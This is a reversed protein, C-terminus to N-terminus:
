FTKPEDRPKPPPEALHQLHQVWLVAPIAGSALLTAACPGGILGGADLRLGGDEALVLHLWGRGAATRLDGPLGVVHPNGMGAFLPVALQALVAWSAGGRGAGLVLCRSPVGTVAQRVAPHEAFGPKRNRWADLGSPETTVVLRGTGPGDGVWGIALPVLAVFGGRGGDPTEALAFREAAAAIWPRAAPEPMSLAVTLTPFPSGEGFWVTCPGDLARLTAIASPLRLDTCAQELATADAAPGLAALARAAAKADATWTLAALASAPLARLEGPDAWRTLLRGAEIAAPCPAVEVTERLGAPDLRLSATITAPLQSPDADPLKGPRIRAVLDAAPDGLPRTARAALPDPRSSWAFIRGASAMRGDGCPGEGDGAPVAPLLGAVAIRIRGPDGAVAVTTDPPRGAAATAAVAVSGLGDLADVSGALAAELRQRIEGVTVRGWATGLLAPYPTGNWRQRSRALDPLRVEVAPEAPLWAAPDDAASLATALLILALRM